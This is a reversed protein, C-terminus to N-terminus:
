KKNLKSDISNDSIKSLFIETSESNVLNADFNSSSSPQVLNYLQPSAEKILENIWKDLALFEVAELNGNIIINDWYKTIMKGWFITCLRLLSNHLGDSLNLNDLEGYFTKSANYIANLKATKIVEMLYFKNWKQDMTLYKRKLLDGTKSIQNLLSVKIIEVLNKANKILKLKPPNKWHDNFENLYSYVGDHSEGSRSQSLKKFIEKTNQQYMSIEDDIADNSSMIKTLNTMNKLFLYASNGWWDKIEKIGDIIENLYFTKLCILISYLSNLNDSINNKAFNYTFFIAYGLSVYPLLQNETVDYKITDKPHSIAYSNLNIPIKSNTCAILLLRFLGKWDYKLLNLHIALKVSEEIKPNNTSSISGNNSITIYRSLLADKPIKFKNFVVYIGELTSSFKNEAGRIEIGKLLENTKEDKIRWIFTHTGYDAGNVLLRAHFIIHSTTCDIQEPWYKIAKTSPTNITFEQNILDYIAETEFYKTNLGHGIETQAYWGIIMNNQPPMLYLNVQEDSGLAQVIAEFILHSPNAWVELFEVKRDKNNIKLKKKLQSLKLDNDRIQNYKTESDNDFNENFYENRHYKESNPDNRFNHEGDYLLWSLEFPEFIYLEPMLESVDTQQRMLEEKIMLNLKRKIVFEINIAREM